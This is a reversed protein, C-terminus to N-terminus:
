KRKTKRVANRVQCNRFEDGNGSAENRAEALYGGRMKSTWELGGDRM